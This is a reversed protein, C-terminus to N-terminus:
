VLNFQETNPAYSSQAEPIYKRLFKHYDQALTESRISTKTFQM